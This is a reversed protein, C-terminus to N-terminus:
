VDLEKLQRCEVQLPGIFRAAQDSWGILKMFIGRFQKVSM